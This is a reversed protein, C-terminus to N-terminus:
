VVLVPCKALSVVRQSVSGILYTESLHLGRSGIVILEISHKSAYDTIVVAPKGIQIHTVVDEVGDKQAMEKSNTIITTAYEQLSDDIIKPDEKRIMSISIERINHHRIISIIHLIAQFKKALSTAHSFAQFSGESGDVACLIKTYM